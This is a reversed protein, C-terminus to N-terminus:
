INGHVKDATTAGNLVVAKPDSGTLESWVSTQPSHVTLAKSIECGLYSQGLGSVELYWLWLGSKPCLPAKRAEREARERRM